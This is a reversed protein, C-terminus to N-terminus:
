GRRAGGRARVQTLSVLFSILAGATLWLAGRFGEPGSFTMENSLFVAHVMTVLVALTWLPFLLRLRGTMACLVSILGFIGGGILWANLAGGHFPLAEFKLDHVGSAVAVVGLAVLALSLILHFLYSLVRLLWALANM